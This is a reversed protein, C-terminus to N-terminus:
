VWGFMGCRTRAGASNPAHELGTRSLVLRIGYLNWNEAEFHEITPTTGPAWLAVVAEILHSNREREGDMHKDLLLRSAWRELIVMKNPDDLSQFLEYQECGEEQETLVQLATFARAFQASKGPAVQITVVHRIAM